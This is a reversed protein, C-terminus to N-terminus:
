SAHPRRTAVSVAASLAGLADNVLISLHRIPSQRSDTSPQDSHAASRALRDAAIEAYLDAQRHAATAPAQYLDFM